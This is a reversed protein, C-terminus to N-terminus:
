GHKYGESQGDKCLFDAVYIGIFDVVYFIVYGVYARSRRHRGDELFGPTRRIEM